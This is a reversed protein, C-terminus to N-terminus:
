KMGEFNHNVTQASQRQIEEQQKMINQISTIYSNFRELDNNNYFLIQGDEIIWAGKKASLLMIINEFESITKSELFWLTDINNTAEKMGKDFGALAEKKSEDSLNLSLINEKANALLANTQKKYKNVINEAKQITVKSEIFTRDDQIRNPDLISSWGIAELELLYDNRQSVIKDMFEKIFKEMEGFEGHTKPTTNISKTIRQPFGQSDISAELIESYQGQIEEIAQKAEQEESEKKFFLSLPPRYKTNVIIFEGRQNTNKFQIVVRAVQEKNEQISDYIEWSYKTEDNRDRTFEWHKGLKDQFHILIFEFNRLGSFQGRVLYFKDNYSKYEIAYLPAGALMLSDNERFYYKGYKDIKERKFEAIEDLNIGWEIDRFGQSPNLLHNSESANNSAFSKSLLSLCFSLAVVTAILFKNNM